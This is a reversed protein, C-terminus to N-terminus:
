NLQEIEETVLDIIKDSNFCAPKSKDGRTNLNTKRYISIAMKFNSNINQQKGLMEKRLSAFNQEVDRIQKRLAIPKNQIENLKEFYTDNIKQKKFSYEENKKRKTIDLAKEADDFELKALDFAKHAEEFQKSEDHISYSLWTGIIYVLLSLFFFFIINFINHNGAETVVKIYENRLYSIVGFLIIIIILVIFFFLLNEKKEKRRKLYIGSQHALIPVGIVLIFAMIITLVRNEGFINFVQSNIPIESFGLVAMIIYYWWGLKQTDLHDRGLQVQLLNLNSKKIEFNGRKSTYDPHNEADKIKKQQDDELLSIDTLLQKQLIEKEKDLISPDNEIRNLEFILNHYEIKLKELQGREVSLQALMGEYHGELVRESDSFTSDPDPINNKGDGIGLDQAIKRGLDHQQAIDQVTIM